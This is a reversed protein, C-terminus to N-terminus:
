VFGSKLFDTEVYVKRFFKISASQVSREFLIFNGISEQNLIVNGKTLSKPPLYLFCCYDGLTFSKLTVKNRWAHNNFRNRDKKSIQYLIIENIEM